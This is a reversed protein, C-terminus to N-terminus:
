ANVRLDVLQPHSHLTGVSVSSAAEPSLSVLARYVAYKSQTLLEFSSAFVNVVTYNYLTHVFM